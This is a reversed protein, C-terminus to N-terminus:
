RGNVVGNQVSFTLIDSCIDTHNGVSLGVSTIDWNLSLDFTIQNGQKNLNVTATGQTTQNGYKLTYPLTVNQQSFNQTLDWGTNQYDLEVLVFGFSNYNLVDGLVTIQQSTANQALMPTKLRFNWKQQGMDIDSWLKDSSLVTTSATGAGSLLLTASGGFSTQAISTITAITLFLLLFCYKRM